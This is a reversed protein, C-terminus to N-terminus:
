FINRKVPTFGVGRDLLRSWLTSVNGVVKRAIGIAGNVDANILIGISSQFLGRKVRKGLYTEHHELPENALHDVKSTYSEEYVEVKIGIDSLKYELQHIFTDFPISVFNQNTKKGLSISQKWGDNKGIIVKGIKNNECWKRIYASSKHLYDYVKMNRHFTLRNIRM